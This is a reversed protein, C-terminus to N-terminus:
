RPTSTRRISLPPNVPLFTLAGTRSSDNPLGVPSAAEKTGCGSKPKMHGTSLASTSTGYPRDSGSRTRCASAGFARPRPLQPEGIRDGRLTFVTVGHPMFRETGADWLYHAFAPQGNARTPLLRWRTGAALPRSSLFTAVAERGRFWTPIPPMTLLADEALM